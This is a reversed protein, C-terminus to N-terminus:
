QAARLASLLKDHVGGFGGNSMCVIHDGPQAAAAVQTVLPEIANAVRARAGM